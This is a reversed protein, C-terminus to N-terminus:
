FEESSWDNVYAELLLITDGHSVILINKDEYKSELEELFEAARKFIEGVRENEPRDIMRNKGEYFGLADKKPGGAIDGL